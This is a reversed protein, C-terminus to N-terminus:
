LPIKDHFRQTHKTLSHMQTAKYDCQDCSYRVGEHISQMHANLNCKQKAKYDCQGCNYRVGLHQSKKHSQLGGRSAQYECQDCKFRFGKHQYQIHEKLHVKRTATHDCYDCKYRVGDHISLKHKSLSSKCLSTFDCLDCNYTMGKQKSSLEHLFKCHNIFEMRSSYEADCEKCQFTSSKYESASIKVHTIKNEEQKEIAPGIGQTVYEKVVNSQLQKETTEKSKIKVYENDSIEKFTNNKVTETNILSIKDTNADHDNQYVGQYKLGKVGLANATALFLNLDEQDLQCQGLYIFQLVTELEKHRIDKLYILINQHPNIRLIQKFFNSASSVISKHVRVHQDDMTALTLDTFDKERWLQKFTDQIHVPFNDWYLSIRDETMKDSM